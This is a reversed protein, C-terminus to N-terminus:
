RFTLELCLLSGRLSCDVINSEMFEMFECPICVPSVPAVVGIFRLLAGGLGLKKLENICCRTTFVRCREGLFQPVLEQV